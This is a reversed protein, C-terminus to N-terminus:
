APLAELDRILRRANALDATAFGETFREYVARLADRAARIRGQDRWLTALSATVRLEWALVGQKRACELANGFREEAASLDGSLRM